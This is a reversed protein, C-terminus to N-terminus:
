IKLVDFLFQYGPAVQEDWAAMGPKLRLDHIHQGNKVALFGTRIGQRKMEEHLDSASEFIAINDSEGHIIFTPVKYDGARVRATPCISSQRELTPIDSVLQEVSQHLGPKGNLLLSLGFTKSERFLSLLLESRADGSKVWSLEANGGVYVDYNPLQTKSLDMRLLQDRSMRPSNLPTKGRPFVDRSLFDVPAYFSLIAKPPLEGAAEVTWATSMALHGGTSWGIVVIQEVDLVIGRSAVLSPLTHRAWIFADSVDAMAGEIINVEPCLRYDLSVPLIGNEVLHATQAPRIARRSLTMYGGGHLMLAIPMARRPALIPVFIDAEIQVDDVKKYCVTMKEFSAPPALQQTSAVIADPISTLPEPMVEPRSYVSDKEPNQAGKDTSSDNNAENDPTGLAHLIDEVKSQLSIGDGNFTSSCIDSLLSLIETLALSDVGIEELTHTPKLTSAEIGTTEVIVETLKNVLSATSVANRRDAEQRAPKAGSSDIINSPNKIHKPPASRAVRSHLLQELKEFTISLLDQADIDIDFSAKLEEAMETAALSDLGLDAIVAENVIMSAKIGTYTELVQGLGNSAPEDPSEASAVSDSNSISSLAPTTEETSSPSSAGLLRDRLEAEKSVPVRNATDLLRELRTLELKVFRCGTFAAAVPGDKSFAFVDGIAESPSTQTYSAHVMWSRNDVMDCGKAIACNRIGTCIMVESKGVADSTNILLGVVHIFNDLSVADCKQVLTSEDLGPQGPPISIRAVAEAGSMTISSIGKLFPEYTVVRSFLDYAHKMRLNEADENGVLDQIRRSVLRATADLNSWPPSMVRGKAHITTKGLKSLVRSIITFEWQQHVESSKELMVEVNESGLCLPAQIDLGEFELCSDQSDENGLLSLAMAVCEMYMSAPCLPRNRVAHGSVISKFREGEVSIRFLKTEEPKEAETGPLLTVLQCKKELASTSKPHEMKIIPGEDLQRQLEAAHDINDLWATPMDFQYPPLWVSSCTHGVPLFFWHTVDLSSSWLGCVIRSIVNVPLEEDKTSLSHFVHGSNQSTARKTMSMIPTNMGAELWVCSGLTKEIRQVADAFFVPNRAHDSPSYPMSLARPNQTCLEVPLTSEKWELSAAVNELEGLIPEVLQSHFGHSTDVRMFKISRSLLHNELDTISSDDGSVVQNTDSNYCAIELKSDPSISRMSSLTESVVQRSAFVALMSGKEQGWRTKMLAARAAVLKLCDRLSLRGSVALATLEGLSHGVAIDVKLGADIWTAASAYQVAVFGTQLVVIDSINNTDFVGPLISPYGLERLIDECMDLYMRFQTFYHYFEKALGITRKSQGGFVLVVPTPAARELTLKQENELTKVLEAIDSAEFVIFKNHRRRKESLTYAVQAINPQPAAKILYKVLSERISKLATISQASLIIPLKLVPKTMINEQKEPKPPECCLIAANSGAAGYSNVLAIRIPADWSRLSTPINMRDLSITPIKPNWIKHSAQAPIAQHELMCIVKLLGAVGAATECHGINGKISGINLEIDRAPSGFVSRISAIELPDRAQTGTGHAEIYSVQEPKLGGQELVSRYLQTQATYDPVTISSSLGGQNTAAGPIVAMIHDGDSLAAKLSKLVVLGAGDARCYGDADKDFPKCQGSPSLFGARGLDLFNNAGTILNVGGALAMSCEGGRIAKVARNIAVLSASCATDIVEAPGTWGFYYSLRGCLFARITGTSTYANPPYANTNDLYEIFSAGIFCGVDDGRTRVHSRTYGSSEMAEYSLELLMRQQPDMNLMERPNIGFFANDFREVNDILNAYFKRNTTFNGSKSARYTGHIDVRSPKLEEHRDQGTSLLEWLEDLNYAGPLRCSAGIVAIANENYSYATSKGIEESPMQIMNTQRSWDIKSVRLGLKNFPLLPVCDGIGFSVIRHCDIGSEKLDAAVNSLLQYWECRSALVTNVIEKTLSGQTIRDGTRNSRLPVQLFEAQPLSLDLKECLESLEAALDLNEPNHTKGKIAMTQVLLGQMTAYSQLKAMQTDPGVISVSKPDTIASIYTNPFKEVLEEAQGERKLRVVMTTSGGVTSDDGLEAYIGIVFALRIATAMSRALEDEGKACALAAAAPLGGCYGQIGGSSHVQAIIDEHEMGEKELFHFYQAFQIITLRPLTIIGSSTCTAAETAGDVLWETLIRAYRPGNQLSSIRPDQEALLSWVDHLSTIERTICSLIPHDVIFARVSELYSQSAVKSQPGFVVLSTAM